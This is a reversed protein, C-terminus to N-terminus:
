VGRRSGFRIGNVSGSEWHVIRVADGLDEIARYAVALDGRKGRVLVALDEIVDATDPRAILPPPRTMSMEKVTIQISTANIQIFRSAFGLWV